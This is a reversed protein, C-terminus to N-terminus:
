VAVSASIWKWMYSSLLGRFFARDRYMKARNAVMAKYEYTERKGEKRMEALEANREAIMKNYRDVNAEFVSIERECYAALEAASKTKQEKTLIPKM